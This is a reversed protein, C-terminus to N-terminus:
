GTGWVSNLHSQHLTKPIPGSLVRRPCDELSEKMQLTFHTCGSLRTPQVLNTVQTKRKQWSGPYGNMKSLCGLGQPVWLKRYHFSQACPYWICNVCFIGRETGKDATPVQRVRDDPEAMACPRNPRSPLHCFTNHTERGDGAGDPERPGPREETEEDQLTQLQDEKPELRGNRGWIRKM